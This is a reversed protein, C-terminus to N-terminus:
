TAVPQFQNYGTQTLCINQAVAVPQIGLQLEVSGATRNNRTTTWDLQPKKGTGAVPGEIVLQFLDRL